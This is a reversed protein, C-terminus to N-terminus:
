KNKIHELRYGYGYITHLKWGHEAKLKLLMRIRYIHTDLSRSSYKEEKKWIKDYIEKRSVPEGLRIFLLKAIKYERLAPKVQKNDFMIEQTRDKFTYGAIEINDPSPSIRPALRRRMVNVIRACLETENFPKVLFDDAGTLLAESIDDTCNNKTVIIVSPHYNVTSKKRIIKLLDIGTNQDIFWDLIFLDYAIINKILMTSNTYYDVKLCALENLQTNKLAHFINRLEDKSDDIIAVKM